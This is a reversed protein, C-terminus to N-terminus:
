KKVGIFPQNMYRMTTLFEKKEEDSLDKHNKFYELWMEIAPIVELKTDYYILDNM